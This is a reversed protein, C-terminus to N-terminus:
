TSVSRSAAAKPSFNFPNPDILIANNRELLKEFDEPSMAGENETFSRVDHLLSYSALTTDTM